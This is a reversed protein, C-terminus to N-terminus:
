KKNEKKSDLESKKSKKIEAILTPIKTAIMILLGAMVGGLFWLANDM